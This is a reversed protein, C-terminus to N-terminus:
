YFSYCCRFDLDLCNMSNNQWNTPLTLCVNADLVKFTSISAINAYQIFKKKAFVPLYASWCLKIHAYRQKRHASTIRWSAQKLDYEHVHFENELSTTLHEMSWNWINIWIAVMQHVIIVSPAHTRDRAPISAHIIRFSSGFM